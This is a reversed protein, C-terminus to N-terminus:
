TELDALVDGFAEVLHRAAKTEQPTTKNGPPWGGASSETVLYIRGMRAHCRYLGALEVGCRNPIGLDDVTFPRPTNKRRAGADQAMRWADPANDSQNEYMVAAPKAGPHVYFIARAFDVPGTMRVGVTIWDNNHREPGNRVVSDFEFGAPVAAELREDPLEEAAFRETEALLQARRQEKTCAGLLLMIIILGVAARLGM